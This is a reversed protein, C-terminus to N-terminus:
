DELLKSAEKTLNNYIEYYNEKEQYYDELNNYDYKEILKNNKFVDYKIENNYGYINFSAHIDTDKEVKEYYLINSALDYRFTENKLNKEYINYDVEKYDNNKLIIRLNKYEDKKEEEKIYILKNNQFTKSIQLKIDEECENNNSDEYKINIYLNDMNKIFEKSLFHYNNKNENISINHYAPKTIINHIEDKEKYYLTLTYEPDKLETNSKLENLNLIIQNNTIVLSSNNIKFNESDLTIEYIKVKNFNNIFYISTFILLLIILTGLVIAIRKKIIDKKTKKQELLEINLIKELKKITDIDPINKETEWNSIAKDSVNVLKALELQTIKKNKRAESIIKGINEKINM